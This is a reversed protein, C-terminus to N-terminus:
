QAGTLARVVLHLARGRERFRRPGSSSLSPALVTPRGRGSRIDRRLLDTRPSGRLHPAGGRAAIGTQDAVVGDIWTPRVTRAEAITKVGAIQSTQQLRDHQVLIEKLKHGLGVAIDYQLDSRGCQLLELRGCNEEAVNERRGSGDYSLGRIPTVGNKGDGGGHLRGVLNKPEAPSDVRGHGRHQVPARRNSGRRM